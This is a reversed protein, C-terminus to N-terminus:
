HRVPLPTGTGRAGDDGSALPTFAPHSWIGTLQGCRGRAPRCASSRVLEIDTSAMAVDNREALV